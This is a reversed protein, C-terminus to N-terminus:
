RERDTPDAINERCFHSAGPVFAKSSRKKFNVSLTAIFFCNGEMGRSKTKYNIVFPPSEDLIDEGAFFRLTTRLITTTDQKLFAAKVQELTSGYFEKRLRNDTPVWSILAPDSLTLTRIRAPYKNAFLLATFGGFSHGVLHVRDLKLSDILARLDEAETAPSFNSLLRPNRNPFNYRRSYSIARYSTSFSDLQSNWNGYDELSGHIFIISEGKGTDRYHIVADNVHVQKLQASGAFQLLIFLAVFVRKHVAQKNTLILSAANM